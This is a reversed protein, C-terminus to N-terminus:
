SGQYLDLGPVRDFHRRNRTVLTFDNVLATSAILLDMDAILNGFRRLTGRLDAFRRMSMETLSVISAGELFRDFDRSDAERSRSFFIGELVEGFTLISIGIGEPSLADLLRIATTKGKLYDIVWDSDVLYSV